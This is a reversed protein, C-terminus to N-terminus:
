QYNKAFALYDAISERLLHLKKEKPHVQLSAKHLERGVIAEPM